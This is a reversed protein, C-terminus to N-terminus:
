FDSFYNPLSNLPLYNEWTQLSKVRSTVSRLYVLAAYHSYFTSNASPQPLVFLAPIYLM